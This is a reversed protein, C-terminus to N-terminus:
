MAEGKVGSVICHQRPINTEGPTKMLFKSHWVTHLSGGVVGPLSQGLHRSLVVEALAVKRGVGLAGLTSLNAGRLDAQRAHSTAPTADRGM